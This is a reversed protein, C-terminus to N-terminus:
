KGDDVVIDEPNSESGPHGQHMFDPIEAFADGLASMSAEESQLIDHSSRDAM